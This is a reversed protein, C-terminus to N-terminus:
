ICAWACSISSEIITDSALYVLIRFTENHNNPITTSCKSGHSEDVLILEVISNLDVKIRHICPCQPRDICHLPLNFEDCFLRDTIENSQTLLSFPPYIFSINNIAGM